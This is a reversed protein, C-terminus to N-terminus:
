APGPVEDAIAFEQRFGMRVTNDVYRVWEPQFVYLRSGRLLLRFTTGLEFRARYVEEIRQRQGRDPVQSARGRM